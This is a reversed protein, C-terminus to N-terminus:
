IIEQNIMVIRRDLTRALEDFGDEDYAQALGKRDRELNAAKCSEIRAYTAVAEAFITAAKLEERM